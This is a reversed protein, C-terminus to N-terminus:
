GESQVVSLGGHARRWRVRKLLRCFFRSAARRQRLRLVSMSVPRSSSRPTASRTRPPRTCSAGKFPPTHLPPPAANTTTNSAPPGEGVRRSLAAITLRLALWPTPWCLLPSAAEDEEQTFTSERQTHERTGGSRAVWVGSKRSGWKDCSYATRSCCTLLHRVGKAFHGEVHARM